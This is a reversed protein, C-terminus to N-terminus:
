CPTTSPEASAPGNLWVPLEPPRTESESIVTCDDCATVLEPTVFPAVMTFGPQRPMMSNRSTDEATEEVPCAGLSSMTSCPCFGALEVNTFKGPAANVCTALVVFWCIRTM